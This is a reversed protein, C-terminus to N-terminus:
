INVNEIMIPKNVARFLQVLSSRDGFYADSLAISSNLDATDDYIGFDANKYEEVLKAYEKSLEPRMSDLTASILPHPRWLLVVGKSNKFVEFVRRIKDVMRDGNQLFGTVTTNYLIIKKMNGNEDYIKKKWEESIVVDEKKISKVKDIKPSGTGYIKKEWISRTKEGTEKAM